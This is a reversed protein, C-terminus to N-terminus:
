RTRTRPGETRALGGSDNPGRRWSHAVADASRHGAQPKSLRSVAVAQERQWSERSSNSGTRSAAPPGSAGGGYRFAM